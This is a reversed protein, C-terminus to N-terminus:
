SPSTSTRAPSGSPVTLTIDSRRRRDAQRDHHRLDADAHRAGRETRLIHFTGATGPSTSSRSKGPAQAPRPSISTSYCRAALITTPSWRRNRLLVRFASHAATPPLCIPTVARHPVQRCIPPSSAKPAPCGRETRTLSGSRNWCGDFGNATASSRWQRLQLGDAPLRGCQGAQGRWGSRLRRRPDPVAHRESGSRRLLRRRQRRPRTVSTTYQLEGQQSSRISPDHHHRRGFQLRRRHEAHDALLVRDLGAQLGDHESNAINDAVTSLRNAQANMGSVGTRMMGYLSM